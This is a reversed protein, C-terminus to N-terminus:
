AVAQEVLTEALQQLTQATALRSKLQECLTMLEDVKAVIRGQEQEPPLPILFKSINGMSLNARANDVQKDFM